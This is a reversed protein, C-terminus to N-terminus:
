MAAFQDRTEQQFQQFQQQFQQFQQQFQQFQQQFQQQLQQVQNAVEQNTPQYELRDFECFISGLDAPINASAQVLQTASQRLRGSAARLNPWNPPQQAAM